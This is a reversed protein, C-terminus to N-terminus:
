RRRRRALFMAGVALLALTGPEPFRTEDLGTGYQFLVGSISTAPNFGPPIGSFTFVVSNKILPRGIIGGNGTNPDDGASTIGYNIGNPSAPPDLDSGPFLDPPGFLDFGASSIGYQRNPVAAPNLDGRYAWEGGVVGGPDTIGDIVTSGLGLVASARTLNPSVGLIDWFVATLVQSPVLVDNASTNTLTVILDTGSTDFTVSASLGGFLASFTYPVASAPATVGVWAFAAIGAIVARRL